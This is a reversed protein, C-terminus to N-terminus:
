FDHTIRRLSTNMEQLELLISELLRRCSPEAVILGNLDSATLVGASSVLEVREAHALTDQTPDPM